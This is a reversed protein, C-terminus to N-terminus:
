KEFKSLRWTVYKSLLRNEISKMYAGMLSYDPKDDNDMKPLMVIQSKLRNTGLKLGYGYKDKQHTIARTLFFNAYREKNYPILRRTDNGFLAKYPHYFSYGVAGNRNVSICCESLTENRNDVFYGIGNQIATSTIYPTKGEQREREYIDRGSLVEGINEIPFACWIKNQLKYDNKASNIETRCKIYKNYKKLLEHEINAMHEEMYKYDPTSENSCPLIVKFNNLRASNISHGHGFLRSQKSICSSIFLMAYRSMVEKPYLATVHTDLAFGSPQYYALGAGGDGDNNLTICNGAFIESNKVVCFGKYGNEMKRASVLPTIGITLSDMNKQNGKKPDFLDLLRYERWKISESNKMDLFTDEVM